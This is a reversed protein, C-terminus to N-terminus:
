QKQTINEGDSIFVVSGSTDTRFYETGYKELLEVTERHPHGYSNNRGCSIVAYRPSVTAFFEEGTSTSSGHHGLKLIDSRIGKGYKNLLLVESNKEADGMVLVSNEGFEVRTVISYENYDYFVDLPALLTFSIDGAEYEDEAEAKIVDIDYEDIADLLRTFTRTDKVADTMIIHEVGLSEIVTVAGGIHDEDPHTLIFYDLSDTRSSIYYATSEASSYPGADILLSNEGSLFLTSDGQGVDIFHVECSGEPVDESVKVFYGACILLVFVLVSIWFSGRRGTRNGKRRAKEM